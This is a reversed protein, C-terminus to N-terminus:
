NSWFLQNKKINLHRKRDVIPLLLSYKESDM